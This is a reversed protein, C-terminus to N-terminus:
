NSMHKSQFMTDQIGTIIFSYSYLNKESHLAPNKKIFYTELPEVLSLIEIIIEYKFDSFETSFCICAGKARQFKNKHKTLNELIQSIQMNYHTEGFINGQMSFIDGFEEGCLKQLMEGFEDKYSKEVKLDM